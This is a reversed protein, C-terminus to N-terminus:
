WWEVFDRIVLKLVRDIPEQFVSDAAESVVPLALIDSPHSVMLQDPIDLPMFGVGGGGFDSMRKPDVSGKRKKNGDNGEGDSDTLDDLDRAKDAISQQLREM